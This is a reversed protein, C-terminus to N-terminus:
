PSANATKKSWLGLRTFVSDALSKKRKIIPPAPATTTTELASYLTLKGDVSEEARQFWLLDNDIRLDDPPAPELEESREIYDSYPYLSTQENLRTILLRVFTTDKEINYPVFCSELFQIINSLENVAAINIFPVRHPQPIILGGLDCISLVDEKLILFVPITPLHYAAIAERYAAFKDEPSFLNSLKRFTEKSAASIDLITRWLRKIPYFVLAGYIAFAASFNRLEVCFMAVDIWFEMYKVRDAREEEILIGEAIWHLFLPEFNEMDGPDRNVEGPYLWQELIDEPQIECYYNSALCTIQAAFWEQGVPNMLTPIQFIYDEEPTLVPVFQRLVVPPAHYEQAAARAHQLRTSMKGASDRSIARRFARRAAKAIPEPIGASSFGKIFPRLREVVCGDNDQRWYNNLWLIILNAISTRAHLIHQDWVRQQSPTFTTGLPYEDDWREEFFRMLSPPTCFLRFSLFLTQAMQHFDSSQRSTLLLIIAPVSAAQVHGHRDLRVSVDPMPMSVREAPQEPDTCDFLRSQRFTFSMDEIPQPSDTIPTASLSQIDSTSSSIIPLLRKVFAFKKKRPAAAILPPSPDEDESESPFDEAASADNGGTDKGSEDKESAEKHIEDDKAGTEKGGEDNGAEDVTTPLEPLPKSAPTTGDASAMTQELEAAEKHLFFLNDLISEAIRVVESLDGVALPKATSIRAMHDRLKKNRTVVARDFAMPVMAHKLLFNGNHITKLISYVMKRFIPVIAGLQELDEERVSYTRLLRMPTRLSPYLEEAPSLDFTPPFSQTANCISPSLPAEALDSHVSENEDNDDLGLKRQLRRLRNTDNNPPTTTTPTSM